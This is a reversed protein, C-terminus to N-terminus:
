AEEREKVVTNHGITTEHAILLIFVSPRTLLRVIKLSQTYLNRVSVSMVDAHWSNELIFIIEIECEDVLKEL